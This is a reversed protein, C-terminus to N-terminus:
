AAVRVISEMYDISEKDKVMDLVKLKHYNYYWVAYAAYERDSIILDGLTQQLRDLTKLDKKIVKEGIDVLKVPYGNDYLFSYIKGYNIMTAHDVTANKKM